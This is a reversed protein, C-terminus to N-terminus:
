EFTIYCTKEDGNKLSITGQPTCDGSWASASYGPPVVRYVTYDNANVTSYFGSAVQMSGIFLKVDKDAIPGRKVIAALKLSPPRNSRAGYVPDYIDDYALFCARTEGEPVFVRGEADCDGSWGAAAYGPLDVRYLTHGGPEVPVVEQPMVRSPGIFLEIDGEEASGGNDNVIKPIIVIRSAKPATSASALTVGTAPASDMLRSAAMRVMLGNLDPAADREVMWWYQGPGTVDPGRGYDALATDPVVVVKKAWDAGYIMRAVSEGTLWRLKGDRDIGYVRADTTGKIPRVGPRLRALGAFPLATLEADSVGHVGRFDPYWTRYTAEDPFALRKRDGTVLYVTPGSGKILTGPAVAADATRFGWLSFVLALLIGYVAPKKLTHTQM